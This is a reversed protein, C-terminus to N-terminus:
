VPGISVIIGIIKIIVAGLAKKLGCRIKGKIEGDKDVKLNKDCSKEEDGNSIDSTISPSPEFNPSKDFILDFSAVFPESDPAACFVPDSEALVDGNPATVIVKTTSQFGEPAKSCDVSLDVHFSFFEDVPVIEGNLAGGVLGYGCMTPATDSIEVGLTSTVFGMGNDAHHHDSGGMCGADNSTTFMNEDVLHITDFQDKVELNAAMADQSFGLPVLILISAIVPILLSVRLAWLLITYYVKHRIKNCFKQYL